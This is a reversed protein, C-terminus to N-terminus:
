DARRPRRAPSKPFWQVVSPLNFIGLPLGFM